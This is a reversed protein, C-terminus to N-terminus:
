HSNSNKHTKSPCYKKKKLFCHFNELKVSLILPFSEEGRNSAVIIIVYTHHLWAM